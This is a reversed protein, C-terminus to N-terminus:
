GADRANLGPGDINWAVIRGPRIRLREASFGEMLPPQDHLVAARGRIEVGRGLQGDTGVTEEPTALDDVVFSIRPDAQINRFKQSRSLGPGGIDILQTAADIWYAVPHIQPAGDPGISALRGLSRETLYANEADTFEM